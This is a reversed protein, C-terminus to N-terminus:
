KPYSNSVIQSVIGQWGWDSNPVWGMQWGRVFTNLHKCAGIWKFINTKNIELCIFHDRQSESVHRAHFKGWAISTLDM